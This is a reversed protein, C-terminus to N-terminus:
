ALDNKWRDNDEWLVTLFMYICNYVNGWWWECSFLFGAEFRQEVSGFEEGLIITIILYHNILMNFKGLTTSMYFYKASQILVSRQSQGESKFSHLSVNDYKLNTM